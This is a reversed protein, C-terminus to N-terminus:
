SNCMNKSPLIYRPTKAASHQQSNNLESMSTGGVKRRPVAYTTCDVSGSPVEALTSAKEPEVRDYSACRTKCSNVSCGQSGYGRQARGTRRSRPSSAFRSNKSTRTISYNATTLSGFPSQLPSPGQPSVSVFSPPYPLSTAM